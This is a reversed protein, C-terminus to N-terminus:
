PWQEKEAEPEPVWIWCSVFAGGAATRMVTPYLDFEVHKDHLRHAAKHYREDRVRPRTPGDALSSGADARVPM